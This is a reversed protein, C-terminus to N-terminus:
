GAPRESAALLEETVARATAAPHRASAVADAMFTGMCVVVLQRGLEGADRIGAQSATRAFFREVEGVYALVQDRAPHSPDRVEVLTNLFPCSRHGHGDLWEELVDWFVLLRERPSGARREVEPAVQDIWRADPRRLWAAVLDDKSPFHRYFTAKAVHARDILADVGVRVGRSAFLDEAAQLIRDRAALPVGRGESTGETPV